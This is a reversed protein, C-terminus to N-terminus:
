YACYYPTTYFDYYPCDLGDNYLGYRRRGFGLHGRDVRAM